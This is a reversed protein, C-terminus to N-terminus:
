ITEGQICYKRIMGDFRTRNDCDASRYKGATNSTQMQSGTVCSLVMPETTYRTESIFANNKKHTLEQEGKHKEGRRAYSGRAHEPNRLSFCIDDCWTDESPHGCVACRNKDCM